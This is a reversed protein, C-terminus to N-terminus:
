PRVGIVVPGPICRGVWRGNVKRFTGQYGSDCAVGRGSTSRCGHAIPIPYGMPCTSSDAPIVTSLLLALLIVAVAVIQFAIHSRSTTM